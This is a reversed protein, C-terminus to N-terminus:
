LVLAAAARFLDDIQESTLGLHGAVTALVDSDRWLLDIKAWFIKHAKPASPDAMYAEVDDLLGAADLALQARLISVSEPVPAPPDPIETKTITFRALDDADYTDLATWPHNVEFAVAAGDEIAWFTRFPVGPAIEIPAGDVDNTEFKFAM